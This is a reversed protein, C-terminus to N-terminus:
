QWRRRPLRLPMHPMLTGQTGHNGSIGVGFEMKWIAKLGNGLDESGKFGLRSSYDSITVYDMGSMDVANIGQRVKGYVTVDNAMAAPAAVAGAIALAILKKNM